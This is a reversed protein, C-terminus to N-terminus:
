VVTNHLDILQEKRKNLSSDEVAKVIAVRGLNLQPCEM